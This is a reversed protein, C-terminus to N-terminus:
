FAGDTLSGKLIRSQKDVTDETKLGDKMAEFFLEIIEKSEHITISSFHHALRKILDSKTM